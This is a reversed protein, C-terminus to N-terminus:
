AATSENKDDALEAHEQGEKADKRTWCSWALLVIFLAAIAVCAWVVAPAHSANVEMIDTYKASLRSTLGVQVADVAAILMMVGSLNAKM